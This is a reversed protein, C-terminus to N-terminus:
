IQKKYEFVQEFTLNMQGLFGIIARKPIYDIM